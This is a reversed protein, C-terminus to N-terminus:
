HEILVFKLLRMEFKFSFVYMMQMEFLKFESLLFFLLVTM